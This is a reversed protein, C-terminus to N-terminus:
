TEVTNPSNAGSNRLSMGPASASGNGDGSSAGAWRTAANLDDGPLAKYRDQYSNIAATIGNFDNVVIQRTHYTGEELRVSAGQDAAVATDFACQLNETDDVGTPLVTIIAGHRVVFSSNCPAAWTSSCFGLPMGLALFMTRLNKRM